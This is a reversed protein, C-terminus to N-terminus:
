ILAEIMEVPIRKRVLKASHKLSAAYADAADAADAAAYAAYADAAYAAYAAADAAAAAYAAADAARAAFAASRVEKLTARGECWARATEIAKRPRDEGKPVYKLAPEACDCAALVLTKRDVGVRAALWLMWDGRDAVQWCKRLSRGNVWKIAEACADLDRLQETFTM